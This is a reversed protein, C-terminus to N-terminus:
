RDLWEKFNMVRNRSVIVEDKEGPQLDLKLRHNFHSSIKVICDLGVIQKRNIRFFLSPDLSEQIQDLTQDLLYRNGSKTVVFSYSSASIFYAIEKIRVFNLQEGSRILFREKYSKQHQELLTTIAEYNIEKPASLAKFRNISRQLELKSIPKLLYDLGNVKFANVAYQDYATAFIVPTKIEIKDFLAFSHGDALHIDMFILDPKPNNNLWTEAALVEDLIEVIEWNPELENLLSVMRKSAPIEDELLLVKM